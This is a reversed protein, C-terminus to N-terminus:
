EVPAERMPRPRFLETLQEWLIRMRDSRPPVLSDESRVDARLRAVRAAREVEISKHTLTVHMNFPDM